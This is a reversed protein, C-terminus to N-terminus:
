LTEDLLLIMGGKIGVWENIECAL